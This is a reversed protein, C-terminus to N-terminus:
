KRFCIEEFGPETAPRGDLHYGCYGRAKLFAILDVPATGMTRMPEPHIAVLLVPSVRQFLEEAGQLVLLEAGEVDIKILDPAIERCLADLTTMAVSQKPGGIDYALSSAFGGPDTPDARYCFEVTGERNGAVAEIVSVNACANWALHRRLLSSTSPSPEIAIVWGSTGVRRSLMLTHLGVHAGADVVISGERAHAGLLATVAPEYLEPRMGLLRPHLRVPTGDSLRARVGRPYIVERAQYYPERVFGHV